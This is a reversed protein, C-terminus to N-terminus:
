KIKCRDIDYNKNMVERLKEISSIAKDMVSWEEQTYCFSGLNLLNLEIDGLLKKPCLM